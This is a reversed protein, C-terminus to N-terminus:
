DYVSVLGREPNGELQPEPYRRLLPGLPISTRRARPDIDAKPLERSVAASSQVQSLHSKILIYSVENDTSQDV